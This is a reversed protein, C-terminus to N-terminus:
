AGGGWIPPRRGAWPRATEIQGALRFLTAEDGFRGAFQTGIPLNAATWRMPVSMAPQGTVNAVYTFPTFAAMRRRLAFPDQGTSADFAFTGLPVPPEGLMPTLWVDHDVFFRAVDRSIRQLDQLHLLYEPASVERGRGTFAWVFPEFLQATPTRATRRSWDDIAWTFGSALVTTFARWLREGDIAPMAEAVHHGLDELLRAADLVAATCDPHVEAGLLTRTSFAIRLRGPPAGVEEAFPRAPPPAWYPDGLDPGATADLLAASDRVSRTLAHEAVLGSMIDGYHPGLPNRARTPKLGFVGCCAAPVRISGGADNGHAMPVMGAAVAAAAGGSSGGATRGPDWPNRTPGFLRPETTPGIALEPTNTKGITVLGARKYRRVLESDEAPVQDRLFATGETLPVGAYEALFDKVLFPVGRFPGGPLPGSAAARALDDMRLIVANITPNVREMREIAAEVLEAPTIQKRRVLEAQATADLTALDDWHGM